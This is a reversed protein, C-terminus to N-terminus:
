FKLLEKKTAKSIEEKTYGLNILDVLYKGILSQLNEDKLKDNEAAQNESVFTGIGQKTDLLGLNQLELYAKAVTNPNVELQVALERITPVRDGAKLKGTASMHKYQDVIQSYIPVPSKNNIEFKIM